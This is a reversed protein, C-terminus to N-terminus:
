SARSSHAPPIVCPGTRRSPSAAAPNLDRIRFVRQHRAQRRHGRHHEFPVLREVGPSAEATAHQRTIHLIAIRQHAAVQEAGLLNLSLCRCEVGTIARTVDHNEAEPRLPPSLRVASVFEEEIREVVVCRHRRFPPPPPPPRPPPPRAPPPLGCCAAHRRSASDTFVSIVRSASNFRVYKAARPGAAASGPLCNSVASSANWRSRM